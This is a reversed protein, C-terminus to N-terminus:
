RRRSDTRLGSPAPPGPAEDARRLPGAPARVLALHGRRPQRADSVAVVPLPRGGDDRLREWDDQWLLLWGGAVGRAPWRRLPRRAYFRVGPDPPFFAHLTADAPVLADVRAMFAKVSRARAIAPLLVADFTAVWVITAAAIVGVLRRWDRRRATRAALIAAAASALALGALAPRADGAVAALAAAGAADAPTLWRRVAVSADGGAAYLAALAALLALAPAYLRAGAAALRAARGDVPPAAVGAGLLLALAPFLPLLYVSRKAAALSFFVLGTAIWALALAAAAPRPRTALPAAALPLLPTWPLVGVLALALLYGAAHAHGTRAGEADLFRFWNERAVVDLFHPGLRLFAAVYWIAAVAAALGLVTLPRLRRSDGAQRRAALLVAATLGPLVVAVPGKALVGLTTGAAALVLWGRGGRALALTWGALLAALAAALTMDVRASTAARVWEFATALVLAAPLGAAAGFAARAVGWTGAVAATAGLASPLRLAMEPREPAVGLAAAALWYYLPPKRAPEGEPRAPVLWAGDALMERVVLGERPEGRTHFPIDGIGTLYLVSCAAAVVVLEGRASM